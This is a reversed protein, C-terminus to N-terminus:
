LHMYFGRWAQNSSLDEKAREALAQVEGADVGPEHCLLSETVGAILTHIVGLHADGIRREKETAGSAGGVLWEVPREEVNVFGAEHLRRTHKDNAYPDIGTRIAASQFLAFWQLAPSDSPNSSNKACLGAARIDPIELWGGPHLHKFCQALFRPWDHMGNALMRAYIFDFHKDDNPPLFTWDHEM